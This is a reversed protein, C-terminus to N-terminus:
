PLPPGPTLDDFDTEGDADRDFAGLADPDFNDSELLPVVNVSTSGEGFVLNDPYQFFKTFPPNIYVRNDVRFGLNVIDTLLLGGYNVRFLNGFTGYKLPTTELTIATFRGGGEDILQWGELIGNPALSVANAPPAPIFRVRIQSVNRPVYEARVFVQATGDPQIGATRLSIQGARTVGGLAFVADESFSGTVGQYDGTIQYTHSGDQILTIYTLVIQRSLEKVILGPAGAGFALENQLLNALDAPTPASYYHGGTETAMQILASARVNAGFGIPYLRVRNDKAFDIVEQVTNVSSTDRGDSIFVLARVDADDFSPVGFDENALRTCADLVADNVESAGNEGFPVSFAQLGDVLSTKSTSFNHILRNSQQRDHYEMLAINYSEPLDNVFESAATVMQNIVVGNGPAANYMSGTYDLLLALNYRLGEASTVFLNTEDPDIQVEDEEVTFATQLENLIAPDTTDIANGLSDRLLFVFRLIFPPRTRNQAGEFILPAAEINIIVDVPDVGPASITIRGGDVTGTLANRDITVAIPVRDYNDPDGTAVSVGTAPEFFILEPRDTSLTFDLVSGAFGINFVDFTLQNLTTGFDLVTPEVGIEASLGATINLAIQASGANSSIVLIYGYIGPEILDRDLEVTVVDVGNQPTNGGTPSISLFAPFDIPETPDDADPDLLSLSWTLTGTGNNTITFQATETNNLLNITLPNVDLTPTGAVSMAVLINKTGGNSTVTVTGNYIGPLLGTRDVTLEVHDLETSTSGSATDVSLWPISEDVTWALVGSGTNLISLNNKLALTGFNV